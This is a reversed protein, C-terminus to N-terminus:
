EPDNMLKLVEAIQPFHRGTKRANSKYCSDWTGDNTVGFIREDSVYCVVFTVTTEGLCKAVEDGVRIEKEEEYKRLKEAVQLASYNNLVTLPNGTKFLNSMEHITLGGCPVDNFLRSAMEWAANLGRNYNFDATSDLELMDGTIDWVGEASNESLYRYEGTYTPEKAAIVFPKECIGKMEKIFYTCSLPIDGVDDLGFERAMDEWKRIRCVDGVNFERMDNEKRTLNENVNRATDLEDM